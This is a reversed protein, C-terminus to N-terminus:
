YQQQGPKPPEGPETMTYKDHHTLRQGKTYSSPEMWDANFDVLVHSKIASRKKFDLVHESLEMTWKGIRCSCDRNEFIDNLPQNTLVRVSHAEFYHRLKRASMVVDYCMKEMELILIEQLRRLSRFCFINSSAAIAKKGRQINRTRPHPSRKSSHTSRFCILHTAQKILPKDSQLSALMSLKQIHDKFADFAAQQEFNRLLNLSCCVELNQVFKFELLFSVFKVRNPINCHQSNTLFIYCM